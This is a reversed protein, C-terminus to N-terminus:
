GSAAKELSFAMGLGRLDGLVGTAASRIKPRTKSRWPLREKMSEGKADRTQHLPSAQGRDWFIAETASLRLGPLGVSSETGCVTTEIAFDIWKPEFHGQERESVM